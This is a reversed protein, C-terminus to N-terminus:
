LPPHETTPGEVSARVSFRLTNAILNYAAQNWAGMRPTVGPPPASALRPCRCLTGSAGRWVDGPYGWCRFHPLRARLRSGTWIVPRPSPSPPCLSSLLLPPTHQRPGRRLLAPPAALHVGAGRSVLIAFGGVIPESGTGNPTPRNSAIRMVHLALLPRPVKQHTQPPPSCISASPRM